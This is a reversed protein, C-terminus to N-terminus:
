AQWSELIGHAEKLAEIEKQRKAVREEYTEEGDICQKKLEALAKEASDLKDGEEKLSNANAVLEDGIESVRGEKEKKSTQKDSIDEETAGKFMDFEEQAAAEEDTVTTITRDFDSLIVELLGIIGKSESQSGRYESNFVEPALDGVTKGSRDSNPPVYQVLAEGAAGSYFESLIKLALEVGAKGEKATDVTAENEASEANRLETAEKLAKHLSAIDKALQAIEKALKAEEAMLSSKTSTLSEVEAKADDRNKVNEAMAGDCFSKHNAEAAADAELRSVLDKIIQRVKVFHDKGAEARVAASLLIGSNLKKSAKSLVEVARDVVQQASTAAAASVKASGRLQLFSPTKKEAPKDEVWQWHGHVAPARSLQVQALKKNASWSTSVKEKLVSIADEISTLEGSRTKSRQDWMGAKTQCEETLVKMFAEDANKDKTETTRDAEAGEKTETKKAVIKEKQDKAEEAFQKQNKLNLDKKEWQANLDFEETDQEKKNKLFMDKLDELTAIIDNSRYEYAPPSQQAFAAVKQLKADPIKLSPSNSAVSLVKSAVTRLQAFDLKVGESMDEKSAKLAEIAGTVASIADVMDEDAIEYAAHQEDRAKQATDIDTTHTDIETGLEKIEGNLGAIDADLGSIQADLESIKKESKEIMYLKEDAQEKCFCSYKDYQAAEKKGQEEIQGQLDHLLSLVKEVPTVAAAHQVGAGAAALSLMRSMAPM